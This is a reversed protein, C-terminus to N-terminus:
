ESKKDYELIQIRYAYDKSNEDKKATFVYVPSDTYSANVEQPQLSSNRRSFVADDLYPIETYKGSDDYIVINKENDDVYYLKGTYIDSDSYFADSKNIGSNQGFVTIFQINGNKIYCSISDSKQLSDCGSPLSNSKLVIIDSVPNDPNLNLDVAEGIRDYVREATIDGGDFVVSITNKAKNGDFVSDVTIDSVVTDLVTYGMKEVYLPASNKFMQAAEERTIPKNASLNTGDGKLIGYKLATEYYLKAYLEADRVDDFADVRNKTREVNIGYVSIMWIAVEGKTAPEDKRFPSLSYDAGMALEYDKASLIGYDVSLRLYGDAWDCVSNYAEPKEAKLGSVIKQYNEAQGELGASRFILALAECKTMNRLPEFDTGTGRLLGMAGSFYIADNSWYDAPRFSIDSFDVALSRSIFDSYGTYHSENRAYVGASSFLLFSSLVYSILKKM